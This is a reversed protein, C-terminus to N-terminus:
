AALPWRLRITGAGPLSHFGPWRLVLELDQRSADEENPLVAVQVADQPVPGATALLDRLARDFDASIEEAGRGPVLIRELLMAYNLSRGVFMQFPLTSQLKARARDGPDQYHEPQHVTPAFRLSARDRNLAASLAMVGNDSLDREVADPVVTELPFAVTQGGPRPYLRVPLNELM